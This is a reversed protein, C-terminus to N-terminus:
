PDPSDISTNNLLEGGIVSEVEKVSEVEMNLGDGILKNRGDSYMEVIYKEDNRYATMQKTSSIMRFGARILRERTM